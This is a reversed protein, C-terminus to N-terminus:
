LHRSGSLAIGINNNFFHLDGWGDGLGLNAWNNGGDTTGWIIGDGGTAWGHQADTFQVIHQATVHNLQKTITFGAGANETKRFYRPLNVL